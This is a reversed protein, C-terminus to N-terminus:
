RCEKRLLMGEIPRHGTIGLHGNRGMSGTM